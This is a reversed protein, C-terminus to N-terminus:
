GPHRPPRAGLPSGDPTLSFVAAANAHPIPTGKMALVAEAAALDAADEIARLRKLEAPSVLAAAEEGHDTITITAGVKNIM